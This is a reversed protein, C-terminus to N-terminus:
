KVRTVAANRSTRAAITTFDRVQSKNAEELSPLFDLNNFDEVIEGPQEALDGLDPMSGCSLTSFMTAFIAFQKFFSM